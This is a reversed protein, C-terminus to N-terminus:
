FQAAPLQRSALFKAVMKAGASYEIAILAIRDPDHIGLMRQRKQESIVAQIVGEKEQRMVRYFEPSAWFEIGRTCVTQDNRRLRQVDTM